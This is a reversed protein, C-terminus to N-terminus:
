RAPVQAELRSLYNYRLGGQALRDLTPM